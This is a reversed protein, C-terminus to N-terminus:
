KATDLQAMWWTQWTAIALACDRESHPDEPGFDRGSLEKLSGHAARVVEADYDELLAILDPIHETRQKRGCAMAAARRVEPNDQQLKARLTKATMRVLRSALAERVAGRQEEPLRDIARALAETYVYGKSQRLHDLVEQRQEGEADVLQRTLRIIRILNTDFSEGPKLVGGASLTTSSTQEGPLDPSDPPAANALETIAKEREKPAQAVPDPNAEQLAWWKEWNAIARDRAAGVARIGPGFNAGRALRILAAQAAWRIKYDKDKLLAILDPELHRRRAAIIEIAQLRTLRDKAMLWNRLKKDNAEVLSRIKHVQSRRQQQLTLALKTKQLAQVTIGTKAAKLFAITLKTRLADRRIRNVRKQTGKHQAWDGQDGEGLNHLVYDLLYPDYTRQVLSQLWEAM